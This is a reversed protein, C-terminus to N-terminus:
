DGSSLSVPEGTEVANKEANWNRFRHRSLLYLSGLFIGGEVLIELGYGLVFYPNTFRIRWGMPLPPSNFLLYLRMGWDVKWHMLRHLGVTDDLAVPLFDAAVALMGSLWYGVAEAQRSRYALYALVALGMWIRFMPSM